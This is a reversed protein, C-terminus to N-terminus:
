QAASALLNLLPGPGDQTPRAPDSVAREILRDLHSIHPLLTGFFLNGEANQITVTPFNEVDEDDLLDPSEEIDVWVFTHQPWKVALADLDPRYRTCTDCWAACYCVVVLGQAQKLRQTLAPADHQSDFVPM